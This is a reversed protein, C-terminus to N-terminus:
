KLYHEKVRDKSNSTILVNEPVESVRNKLLCGKAKSHAEMSLVQKEVVFFHSNNELHISMCIIVHEMFQNTGCSNMELATSPFGIEKM